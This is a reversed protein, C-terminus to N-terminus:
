LKDASLVVAQLGGSPPQAVVTAETGMGGLGTYPPGDPHAQDWVYAVDFGWLDLRCGSKM